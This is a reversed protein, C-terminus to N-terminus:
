QELGIYTIALSNDFLINLNKEFIEQKSAPFVSSKNVTLMSYLINFNFFSFRMESIRKRHPRSKFGRGGAHCASIRVLQVVAGPKNQM